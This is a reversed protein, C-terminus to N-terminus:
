DVIRSVFMHSTTKARETIAPALLLQKVSVGFICCFFGNNKSCVASHQRVWFHFHLASFLQFNFVKRSWDGEWM